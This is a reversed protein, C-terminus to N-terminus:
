TKRSTNPIQAEGLGDNALHVAERWFWSRSSLGIIRTERGSDSAALRCLLKGISRPEAERERVGWPSQAGAGGAVLFVV